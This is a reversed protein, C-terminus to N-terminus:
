PHSPRARDGVRARNWDAVGRIAPRSRFRLISKHSAGQMRDASRATQIDITVDGDSLVGKFLEARTVHGGGTLAM